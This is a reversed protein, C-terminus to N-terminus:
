LALAAGTGLFCAGSRYGQGSCGAAPKEKPYFPSDTHFVFVSYLLAQRQQQRSPNRECIQARNHKLAIASKM